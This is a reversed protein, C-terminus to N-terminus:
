NGLQTQVVNRSLVVTSLLRVSPRVLNYKLGRTIELHVSPDSLAFLRPCVTKAAVVGTTQAFKDDDRLLTQEGADPAASRTYSWFTWCKPRGLGQSCQPQRNTGPQGSCYRNKSNIADRHHGSM